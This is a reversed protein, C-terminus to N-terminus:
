KIYYILIAYQPYHHIKMETTEKANSENKNDVTKNVNIFVDRINNSIYLKLYFVM